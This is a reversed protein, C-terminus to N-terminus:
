QFGIQGVPDQKTELFLEKAISITLPKTLYGAVSPYSQFKTRNTDDIYCSVVYVKTNARLDAPFEEYARLFDFGDKLPMCLDLLIFSPWQHKPLAHLYNLASPVSESAEIRDKFGIIELIKKEIIIHVLEDDIILASKKM